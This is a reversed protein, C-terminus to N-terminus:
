RRGMAMATGHVSCRPAKGVAGIVYNGADPCALSEYGNPILATLQGAEIVSGAKLRFRRTASGKASEISHLNRKCRERHAVEEPIEALLDQLEEERDFAHFLVMGGRKEKDHIVVLCCNNAKSWAKWEGNMMVAIERRNWDKYIKWDGFQSDYWAKIEKREGEGQAEVLTREAVNSRSKPTSKPWAKKGYALEQGAAGPGTRSAAALADSQAKIKELSQSTTRAAARVAAPESRDMRVAKFADAIQPDRFKRELSQLASATEVRLLPNEQKDGFVTMLSATVSRGQLKEGVFARAAARRVGLPATKDKLVAVILPAHRAEGMRSIAWIAKERVAEHEKSDAAVKGLREIIRAETAEAGAGHFKVPIHGLMAAAGARVNADPDDLAEMLPEVSYPGAKEFALYIDQPVYWACDEYGEGKTKLSQLMLRVARPEKIAALISIREPYHLDNAKGAEYYDLIAERARQCSAEALNEAVVYGETSMASLSQLATKRIEADEDKLMEIMVAVAPEGMQAAARLLSSRERPNKAERFRELMAEAAGGNRLKGLAKSAEGEAGLKPDTLAKVLGDLAAPDGIEGLARAAEGRLARDPEQLAGLLAPVARPNKIKGLTKASNMKMTPTGSQLASVLGDVAQEGGIKGLAEGCVRPLEPDKMAFVELLPGVARPDKLEGLVKAAKQLFHPNAKGAEFAVVLPGVAPEGIAILAQEAGWDGSNEVRLFEILPEVARPDKLEFLAWAASERTRYSTGKLAAILPEIAAGAVAERGHKRVLAEIVQSAAAGQPTPSQLVGAVASRVEVAVAGQDAAM